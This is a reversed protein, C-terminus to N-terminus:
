NTPTAPTARAGGGFRPSYSLGLSFSTGRDRQAFFADGGGPRTADYVERFDSGLINKVSLKLSFQGPLRQSATFDLQPVPEEYVDPTGGLSVRSLRRGFM